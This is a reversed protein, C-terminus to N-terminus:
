KARKKKAGFKKNPVHIRKPRKAASLNPRKAKKGGTKYFPKGGNKKRNKAYLKSAKIKKARYAADSHYKQFQKKLIERRNEMYKAHATKRNYKVPTKAKKAPKDAAKKAYLIESM